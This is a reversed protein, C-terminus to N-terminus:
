KIHPVSLCSPSFMACPWEVDIKRYRVGWCAHFFAFDIGAAVNKILSLKLHSLLNQRKLMRRMLIKKRAFQNLVGAMM